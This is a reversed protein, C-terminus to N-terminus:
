FMSLRPSRDARRIDQLGHVSIGASHNLLRRLTVKSEDSYSCAPVKWSKLALNVDADLDLKGAQVLALAAVASVPKSISGAQFLTEPQVSPGGISAFGFGRAWQVEGDHIVAISVGPVHLDNMREVLKMPIPPEGAIVVAPLLGAVIRQIRQEIDRNSSAANDQALSCPSIVLITTVALLVRCGSSLLKSAM